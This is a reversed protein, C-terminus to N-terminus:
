QGGTVKRLQDSYRKAQAQDGRAQYFNALASLIDGNAPHTTLASKLTSIAADM